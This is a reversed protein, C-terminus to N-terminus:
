YELKERAESQCADICANNIDVCRNQCAVDSYCRNQCHLARQKCSSACQEMQRVVIRERRDEEAQRQQADVQLRLRRRSEDQYWDMLEPPMWATEGEVSTANTNNRCIDIMRMRENNDRLSMCLPACIRAVSAVDARRGYLVVLAEGALSNPTMAFSRELESVAGAEDGQIRIITARWAVLTAADPGAVELVRDLRDIAEGTDRAFTKPFKDYEGRRWATAVADAFSQAQRPGPTNNAAARASDVNALPTSACATLTLLSAIIAILPRM